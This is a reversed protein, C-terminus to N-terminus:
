NQPRISGIRAKALDFFDANKEIGIFKRGEMIAAVGTSASGMTPDFIVDDANSYTRILYRM